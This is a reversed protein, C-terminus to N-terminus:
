VGATVADLAATVDGARHQLSVVRKKLLRAAVPAALHPMLSLVEGDIEIQPCLNVPVRVAGAPMRSLPMVLRTPLGDILSSQIDLVYPVFQRSAAQPNAYVDYQAM